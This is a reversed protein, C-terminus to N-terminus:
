KTIKNNHECAIPYARLKEAQLRFLGTFTMFFIVTPSGDTCGTLSSAVLTLALIAALTRKM